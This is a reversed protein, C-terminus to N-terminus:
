PMGETAGPVPKARTAFAGFSWDGQLLGDPDAAALSSAERRVYAVLDALFEARPAAGRLVNRRLADALADDGGSLGADYAAVRGFFAEAMAKVQRGVSLDGVGMERLNVDMDAFMLDFLAQAFPAARARERRLRRLVLFAHLAVLEFRGEPTDSVGGGLYFEPRRAQAVIRAYLERVPERKPPRGFIMRRLDM